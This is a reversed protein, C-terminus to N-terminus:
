QLTRIASQTVIKKLVNKSTVKPALSALRQRQSSRQVTAKKVAAKLSRKPRRLRKRNILIVFGRRRTRPKYHVATDVLKNQLVKMDRKVNVKGDLNAKSSGIITPLQLPLAAGTFVSFESLLGLFEAFLEDWKKLTDINFVNADAFDFLHINRLRNHLM